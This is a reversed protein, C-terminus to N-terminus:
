IRNMTALETSSGQPILIEITFTLGAIILCLLFLMLLGQMHVITLAKITTTFQQGGDNAKITARHQRRQKMRSDRRTQDLIDETWKDYLGGENVAMMISDLQPKYPADHPIPWASAGPMITERGFYLPNSGDAQTFEDAMWHSIVHRVALHAQKTKTAQRLGELISPGNHMLNALKELILSESERFQKQLDKGVPPMTVRDVYNILEEVTEPRPPYKPLTLAATLNGRYVTGVIFSFVMWTVMLVRNSSSSPLWKSLNQGLFTGFVDQMIAWIGRRGRSYGITDSGLIDRGIQADQPRWKSSRSLMYMLGPMLLLAALTSAWVEDALPYYLSQWQPKLVPKALGFGFSTFTYTYSYDYRELRTHLLVHFVVLMYSKREEVRDAAEKWNSVLLLNSTFNLTNAITGLLLGDPGKYEKVRASDPTRGQDVMFYPPWHLGTVNVTAGYFSTTEQANDFTLLMANMMSFTWLTSFAEQMDMLSLRTVVLLRTSWVLLRGKLSWEAFAALFAPDDSVVVVTVCWSVQRLRRAQSIMQSPQGQTANADLGDVAVEFMGAGLTVTSSGNDTPLSSRLFGKDQQSLRLHKEYLWPTADVKSSFLEECTM